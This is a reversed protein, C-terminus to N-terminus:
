KDETIQKVREAAATVAASPTQESLVLVGEASYRIMQRRMGEIELHLAEVERRSDARAAECEEHRRDSAELLTRLHTEVARFNKEQQNLELRMAAVEKAYHDRINAEDAMTQGRWGLGFRLFAWTLGALGTLATLWQPITGLIEGGM